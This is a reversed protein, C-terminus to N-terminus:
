RRSLIELLGYFVAKDDDSLSRYKEVIRREVNSLGKGQMMADPPYFYTIDVDYMRCLALMQEANPEASGNEWAYITRDSRGVAMGVDAASLGSKKRAERLKMALFSLKRMMKGEVQM